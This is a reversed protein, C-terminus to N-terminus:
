ATRLLAISQLQGYYDSASGNKTSMLFKLTRKGASISVGTITDLSNVVAGGANYGDVTGVDSGDIQVHYIGNVTHKRHMFAITWTGASGFGIDWQVSANQAGTSQRTANKIAGTDVSYTSWNTNAHATILPDIAIYWPDANTGSGSGGSVLTETGADDKSYLLGDAKAYMTVRGSAPTSTSGGESILFRTYVNDSAKTM